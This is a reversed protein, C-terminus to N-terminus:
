SGDADRFGKGIVHAAFGSVSFGVIGFGAAYMTALNTACATGGQTCGGYNLSYYMYIATLASFLALAFLARAFWKM